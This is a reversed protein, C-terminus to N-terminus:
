SERKLWQLTSTMEARMERNADSCCHLTYDGEYVTAKIQDGAKVRKSTEPKDVRYAMTM